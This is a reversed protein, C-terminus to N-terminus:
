QNGTLIAAAGSGTALSGTLAQIANNFQTLPAQTVYVTDGDRVAFDRAEFMGTPATLDLVYIMRQAGILDTRGLVAQAIPEPENRLVFVGTPDAVAADLGGVTAIAELASITQSEFPVLTQTGTAGLAMFTRSDEEVLIRDGDRLAIDVSPDRYLDEFWITGRHTGRLLTIQTIEAETAVGGAAALMASLTRTPREIPFIGPAGVDGNLVVTAGNGTERNVVVQPDPTQEDLNRTIIQRLADPTNGAARIRGAYPIFIFGVGDVEVRDIIAASGGATLLGDEVNEYIVLSLTDGPRIIETNSVGANILAPPFGLAPAVATATTVRANVPVVFADGQRQVSGAFLETRNPGPRPLLACASLATVIVCLAVIRASKSVLSTM